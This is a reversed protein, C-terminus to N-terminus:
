IGALPDAWVAPFLNFSPSLRLRLRTVSKEPMEDASQHPRRGTRLIVALTETSRILGPVPGLRHSGPAAPMGAGHSDKGYSSPTPIGSAAGVVPM